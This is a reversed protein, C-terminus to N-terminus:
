FLSVNDFGHMSLTDFLDSKKELLAELRFLLLLGEEERKKASAKKIQIHFCKGFARAAALVKNYYRSFFLCVNHVVVVMWAHM